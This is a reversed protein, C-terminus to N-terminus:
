LSSLFWVGHSFFLERGQKGMLVQRGAFSPKFAYSNVRPTFYERKYIQRGQKDFIRDSRKEVEIVNDLDIAMLEERTIASIGQDPIGPTIYKNIEQETLRNSM